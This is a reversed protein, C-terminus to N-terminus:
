EAAPKALLSLYELAGPAYESALSCRADCSIIAEVTESRDSVFDWDQVSPQSHKVEGIKLLAGLLQAKDPTHAAYGEGAMAAVHIGLEACLMEQSSVDTIAQELRKQILLRLEQDAYIANRMLPAAGAQWAEPPCLKREPVLEFFPNSEAPYIRCASPRREYIGCSNNELLNPCRAGLPAALTVLVRVPLGGSMAFFSRERKFAAYANSSPPEEPWPIAECLVQVPHGDNLWRVAEGVSLPLRLDRCCNGCQVCRFDIDM